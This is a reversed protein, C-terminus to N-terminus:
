EVNSMRREVNGKQLGPVCSQYFKDAVLDTLATREGEGGEHLQREVM